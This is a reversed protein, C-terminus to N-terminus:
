RGAEMDAILARLRGSEDAHSLRRREARAAQRVLRNHLRAQRGERESVAAARLSRQQDRALELQVHKM